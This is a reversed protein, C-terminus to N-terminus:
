RRLMEVVKAETRKHIADFLRKHRPKMLDRYASPSMIPGTQTGIDDGYHIKLM